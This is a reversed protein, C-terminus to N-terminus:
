SLSQWISGVAKKLPIIRILTDLWKLPKMLLYYKMSHVQHIHISIDQVLQIKEVHSYFHQYLWQMFLAYDVATRRDRVQVYRLGTHPEFAIFVCCSGNKGYEYHYRKAKGPSLPLIGGIDEILFCPREDFCIVPSLPDYPKEYLSLVDEM